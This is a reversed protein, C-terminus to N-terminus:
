IPLWAGIVAGGASILMLGGFTPAAAAPLNPFVYPFFATAFSDLILTPLIFLTMAAPRSQPPVGVWRFILRSVILAALANVIYSAVTRWGDPARLLWAGARAPAHSSSCPPRNGFSTARRAMSRLHPPSARRMLDGQSEIPATGVM